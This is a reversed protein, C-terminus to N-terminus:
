FYNLPNVRNGNIRVEFHCHPGTSNGTNGSLAIIDGQKVPQGESVLLESNHAYLTSVGNGHDIIIYYGYSKDLKRVTTVVGDAVAFVNTGVSVPFDVGGHYYGNSYNPYGASITKSATPYIFDGSGYIPEGSGVVGGVIGEFLKVYDPSSILHSLELKETSDFSYLKSMEDITKYEVDINLTTVTTEVIYENGNEDTQVESEVEQETYYDISTMDWVIEEIDHFQKEDIIAVIEEEKFCTKIDWIAFVEQWNALTYTCGSNSISVRDASNNNEIDKIIDSFNSNINSIVKSITYDDNTGAGGFMIGIPTTIFSIVAVILVVMVIGAAIVAGIKAKTKINNLETLRKQKVKIMKNNSKIEANHFSKTAKYQKKAAKVENKSAKQVKYDNKVQKYDFKAAKIEQKHQYNAHEIQIKTQYLEKKINKIQKNVVADSIKSVQHVPRSGIFGAATGTSAIDVVAKDSATNDEATQNIGSKITDPGQKIKEDLTKIVTNNIHTKIDKPMM